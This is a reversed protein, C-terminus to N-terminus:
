KSYGVVLTNGFVDNMYYKYTGEVTTQTLTKDTTDTMTITIPGKKTTTHEALDNDGQYYKSMQTNSRTIVNAASSIAGALMVLALASILLAILTEGISEGAQSHLKARIQRKVLPSKDYFSDLKM